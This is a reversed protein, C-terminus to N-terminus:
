SKRIILDLGNDPHYSWSATFGDWSEEQRGDLARTDYMHAQVATPADLASILCKLADPTVGTTDEDGKGNILLTDGDDRVATGAHQKDCKTQAEDFKDAAFMHSAFLIGGVVLAALVVGAAILGVVLGKRSRRPEVAQEQPYLQQQPYPPPPPQNPDYPPQTM